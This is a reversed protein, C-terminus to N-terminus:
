LNKVTKKRYESPSCDYYKKFAKSFSQVTAYGIKVGIDSIKQNDKVLLDRAAKMRVELVYDTFAYGTYDRFIKGLYSPSFFVHRAVSELSIDEMYHENIYKKVRDIIDKNSIKSQRTKVPANNRKYIKAAKDANSNYSGTGFVYLGMGTIVMSFIMMMLNILNLTKSIYATKVSLSYSRTSGANALVATQYNKGDISYEGNHVKLLRNGMQDTITISSGGPISEACMKSFHEGYLNILIANGTNMSNVPIRKIITIVSTESDGAKSSYSDSLKGSILASMEQKKIFDDYAQRGFFNNAGTIGSSKITQYYVKEGGEYFIYISDIFTNSEMLNATNKYFRYKEFKNNILFSPEEMDLNYRIFDVVLRDIHFIEKEVVRMVGNLSATHKNLIEKRIVGTYYRSFLLNIALLLIIILWQRYSIKNLQKSNKNKDAPLM